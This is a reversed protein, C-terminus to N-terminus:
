GFWGKKPKKLEEILETVTAEIREAREQTDTASSESRTVLTRVAQDLATLRRGVSERLERTIGADGETVRIALASLPSGAENASEVSSALAKTREALRDLKGSADVGSASARKVDIALTEVVRRLGSVAETVHERVGALSADLARGTEARLDTVATALDERSCAHRAARLLEDSSTMVHHGLADAGSELAGVRSSMAAVDHEVASVRERVAAAVGAVDDRTAAQRAAALADRHGQEVAALRTTLGEIRADLRREIRVALEEGLRTAHQEVTSELVRRLASLLPHGEGRMADVAPKSAEEHTDARTLTQIVDHVVQNLTEEVGAGNSANAVVYPWGDPAFAALLEAPAVANPLDSKNIQVVIPLTRGGLATRVTSISRQNKEAAAPDSDMIVVVGDADELLEGTAEEVRAGRRAVLKVNLSCDDFGEADAHTVDLCLRGADTASGVSVGGRKRALEAFNTQKGSQEAGVYAIKAEIVRARVDLHAM